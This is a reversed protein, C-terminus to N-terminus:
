RGAEKWQLNESKNTERNARQPIFHGTYFAQGKWLFQPEQFLQQPAPSHTHSLRHHALYPYVSELGLHNEDTRYGGASCMAQRM